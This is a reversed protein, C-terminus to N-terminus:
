NMSIGPVPPPGEDLLKWRNRSQYLAAIDRLSKWGPQSMRGAGTDILVVQSGTNVLYVNFTSIMKDPPVFMRDAIKNVEAPSIGLLYKTYVEVFGDYLATVEYKGVMM